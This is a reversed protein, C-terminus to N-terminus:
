DLSRLHHDRYLFVILAAGKQKHLNITYDYWRGFIAPPGPPFSLLFIVLSSIM